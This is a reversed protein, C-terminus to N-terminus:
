IRSHGGGLVDALEAHLKEEVHPRRDLLHWIWAM